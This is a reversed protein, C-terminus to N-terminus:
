SVGKKYDNSEPCPVDDTKNTKSEISYTVKNNSNVERTITIVCSGINGKTKPELIIKHSGETTGSLFGNSVLTQLNVTISNGDTDIKSNSKTGDDNYKYLSSEGLMEKDTYVEEYLERSATVINSVMIEYSKDKGTNISNLISPTVIASLVVIIAVAALLEVLTFGKNNLKM